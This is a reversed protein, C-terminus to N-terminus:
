CVAPQVQMDLRDVSLDYPSCQIQEFLERLTVEKGDKCEVIEDPHRFM